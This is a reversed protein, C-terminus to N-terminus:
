LRIRNSAFKAEPTYPLTAPGHGPFMGQGCASCFERRKAMRPVFGAIRSVGPYPSVLPPVTNFLRARNRQAVASTPASMIAKAAYEAVSMMSSQAVTFGGGAGSSFGTVSSPEVVAKSIRSMVVFPDQLVRGRQWAV